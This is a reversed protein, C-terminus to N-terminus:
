TEELRGFDFPSEASVCRAWWGDASETMVTEPHPMSSSGGRGGGSRSTSVACVCEVWASPPFLTKFAAPLGVGEGLGDTWLHVRGRAAAGGPSWGARHNSGHRARCTPTIVVM